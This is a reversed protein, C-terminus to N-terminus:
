GHQYAWRYFFKKTPVNKLELFVARYGPQTPSKSWPGFSISFETVEDKKQESAISGMSALALGILAICKSKKFM